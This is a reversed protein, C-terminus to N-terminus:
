PGSPPPPTSYWPPSGPRRPCPFGWIPSPPTPPLPCPLPLPCTRVERFVHLSCAPRGQEAEAGAGLETCGPPPQSDSRGGLSHQPPTHPRTQPNHAGFARDM